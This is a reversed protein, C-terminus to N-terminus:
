AVPPAPPGSRFRSIMGGGAFYFWLGCLVGIVWGYAVFFNGVTIAIPVTLGVLIPGLLAVLVLGVVVAVVLALVIRQIM